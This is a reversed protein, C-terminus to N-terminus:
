AAARAARAMKMAHANFEEFVEDKEKKKLGLLDLIRLLNELSVDGQEARLFTQRSLQNGARKEADRLSWNRSLRAAKLKQAFSPAKSSDSAKTNKKETM